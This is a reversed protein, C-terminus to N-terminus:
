DHQRTRQHATKGHESETIEPQQEGLAQQRRGRESERQDPDENATSYAV